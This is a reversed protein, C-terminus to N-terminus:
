AAALMARTVRGPNRAPQYGAWHAYCLRWEHDQVVVFGAGNGM